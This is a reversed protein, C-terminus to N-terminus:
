LKQEENKWVGLYLLNSYRRLLKTSMDLLRKFNWAPPEAALWIWIWWYVVVGSEFDVGFGGLCLNALRVFAGRELMVGVADWGFRGVTCSSRLLELLDVICVVGQAVRRPSAVVVLRPLVVKARAPWAGRVIICVLLYGPLM